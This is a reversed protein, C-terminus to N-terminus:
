YSYGSIPFILRSSKMRKSIIPQPEIDRSRKKKSSQARSPSTTDVQLYESIVTPTVALPSDTSSSPLHKRPTAHPTKDLSYDNESELADEEEVDEHTRHSPLVRQQFAESEVSPTSLAGRGVPLPSDVGDMEEDDEETARDCTL